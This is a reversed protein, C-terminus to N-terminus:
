WVSCIIEGGVNRKRAERDSLIGVPTTLINVGLGRRIAPIEGAGAYTRLSPRSIRKLGTIVSRNQNDYKLWIRLLRHKGQEVISYEKLFGEATLVEVLKVKLKSCPVDVQEKRAQAGNRIRTLLDAIPDTMAM